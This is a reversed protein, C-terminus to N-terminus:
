QNAALLTVDWAWRGVDSHQVGYVKARLMFQNGYQDKRKSEKYKLAIAEVDLESLAYIENVESVGNHNRDQWLRLSFFIADRSDIVGDNNGGQGLKDYEALALFGNAMVSTPQPTYNGFMESGNDIEGNGNRDLVLWADDADAATWALREVSGNINFDFFVGDAGNTLNFGDGKVDILIPCADRETSYAYNYMCRCEELNFEYRTPCVTPQCPAPNDGPPPPYNGNRNVAENDCGTPGPSGGAENLNTTRQPTMASSGAPCTLCEDLGFTHGLEHSVVQEFATLDTVGPNIDTYSNGRYGAGNSFGSTEGQAGPGLNRPTQSQIHYVNTATSGNPPENFTVTFNVGSNGANTWRNLVDRIAQIQNSDFGPGIVITITTNPPWTTIQGQVPPTQCPVTQASVSIVEHTVPAILISLGAKCLILM